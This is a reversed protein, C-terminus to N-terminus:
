LLDTVGQYNLLGNANEPQFKDKMCRHATLIVAHDLLARELLGYLCGADAQM